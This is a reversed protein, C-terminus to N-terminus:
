NSRTQNERQTAVSTDQLHCLAFHGHDACGYRETILDALESPPEHGYQLVILPPPAALTARSVEHERPPIGGVHFAVLFRSTPVARTLPYVWANNSWILAPQGAAESADLEAAIEKTGWWGGGFVDHFPKIDRTQVSEVFGRYYADAYDSSEEALFTTSGNLIVLLLAAIAGAGAGRAATRLPRRWRFAVSALCLAAPPAAQIFYHHYAFGSTMAGTFAFGLWIVFLGRLSRGRDEWVLLVSVALAVLSLVHWIVPRESSGIYSLQYGLNADYFAPLAGAAAFFAVFVVWPAAVGALLAGTLQPQRGGRVTLFVLLAAVDMFAVPKFASALGFLLGVLFWPRWADPRREVRTLTRVALLMGAATLAVMFVETLALQGELPPWAMALGFLGVALLARGTGLIPRGLLFLSVQTAAVAITTLARLAAISEGFTALVGAYLLFILPPKHDWAGEYLLHGDLMRQAVAAFIGEDGYWHPEFFSPVRLLATSAVVM